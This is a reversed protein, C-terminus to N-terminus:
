LSLGSQSSNSIHDIAAVDALDVLVYRMSLTDHRIHHDHVRLQQFSELSYILSLTGPFYNQLDVVLTGSWMLSM